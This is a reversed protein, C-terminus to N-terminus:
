LGERAGRHIRPPDSSPEPIPESPYNTLRETPVFELEGTHAHRILIQEESEGDFINERRVQGTLTPSYRVIAVRGIGGAWQVPRSLDVM